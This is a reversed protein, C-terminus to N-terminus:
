QFPVGELPPDLEFPVFLIKQERILQGAVCPLIGAQEHMGDRALEDADIGIPFTDRAVPDPREEALIRPLDRISEQEVETEPPIRLGKIGPPLGDLVDCVLALGPDAQDVLRTLDPGLLDEGREAANILLHIGVEEGL